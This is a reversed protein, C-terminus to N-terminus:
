VALGGNVLHRCGADGDFDILGVGGGMTDGLFM